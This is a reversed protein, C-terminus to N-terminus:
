FGYALGASLNVGSYDIETSKISVGKADRFEDIVIYRYGIEMTVSFTREVPIVQQLNIRFGYGEGEYIKESQSYGPVDTLQTIWALAYVFGLEAKAVTKYIVSGTGITFPLVTYTYKASSSVNALVTPDSGTISTIFSYSRSSTLFESRLFLFTPLNKPRYSIWIGWQGPRKIPYENSQFLNNNSEIQNNVNDPSIFAIGGILGVSVMPQPVEAFITDQETSAREFVRDDVQAFLLSFAFICVAIIKLAKM